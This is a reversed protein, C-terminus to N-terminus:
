IVEYAFMLTIATLAFMGFLFLVDAIRELTRDLARNPGARLAAYSLVTSALFVLATLACYEDVRSPGIRAEAIKVLGTLTVCIGIMTASNPLIHGALRDAPM